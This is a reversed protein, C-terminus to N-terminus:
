VTFNLPGDFASQLRLEQSFQDSRGSSVDITTFKKTNGVQPDNFFGGPTFPTNNFPVPSDNRNYDQKAYVSGKSYATMSTATLADTLDYALTLQYV